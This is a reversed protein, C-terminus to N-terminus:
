PRSDSKTQLQEALRLENEAEEKKGMDRYAQGLLHHTTPNNPDMAAARQLARVALEFEGKKELVKGMLIYPGTSTADLWISRQLLRESDDYKQLRSYADALKYYTAAHAPNIALEKQFEAVAEPVRSKFLYLEGLLFHALPLKPDLTTAKQAYEEAIPDFEQRFLMRSTFLYSAASDEPVDFMRAFAKRAQPYNKTQIYCIGLIYSADVNARPFWAQVKELLPIAQAPYGNLYYSLGLLQAAENNAPDAVVAKKLFEVAKVYDSKKYYAIGLELDLGMTQPSSAQIAELEAIADDIKGQQMLSRAHAFDPRTSLSPTTQAAPPNSSPPQQAVGLSNFSVGLCSALLTTRIRLRIM